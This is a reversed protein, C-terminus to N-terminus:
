YLQHTQIYNLVSKSLFGGLEDHIEKNSSANALCERIATASIPYPSLQEFWIYGASATNLHAASDAIHHHYFDAILGNDPMAQGPRAMVVIHAFTLLEQWRHWQPLNVFADAGMVWILAVEDGVEERLQALTEVSYSAGDRRLERDDVRLPTGAIALRVMELRHESSSGPADRHPPIHCPM